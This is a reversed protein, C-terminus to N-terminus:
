KESGAIEELRSLRSELEYIEHARFLAVLGRDAAQVRANSQAKPDTALSRLTTVFDLGAAHLAAIAGTLLESKAASYARQFSARDRMRYATRKSVGIAAAASQVTEGALLAAILATERARSPALSHRTTDNTIPIM